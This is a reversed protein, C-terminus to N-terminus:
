NGATARSTTGGAIIPGSGDPPPLTKVWKAIAEDTMEGGPWRYKPVYWQNNGRIRHRFVKRGYFLDTLGSPLPLANGDIYVADAYTPSGIQVVNPIHLVLDSFDICASACGVDTLLFVRRAVPNPPPPETLASPTGAFHVFAKGNARAKQLMDHLKRMWTANDPDHQRQLSLANELVSKINAASVRWDVAVMNNVISQSRDPWADGWLAAAIKDGWQSGGGGNGRVDLVVTGKRLEPAKAKVQDLLAQYSKQDDDSKFYFRPLRVFWVGDLQRLSFDVDYASFGSIVKKNIQDMDGTRWNLKTEGSSFRCSKLKRQSEDPNAIFMESLWMVRAQPIAHNWYYPDTRAKMLADASQGDCSEIHDGVKVGSDPEAFIVQAAGDPGPGIAFGAWEASRPAIVPNINLHGDEFGNTYLRLARVYDSYTRARRAQAMAKVLGGELWDRYHPNEPDVPGPHNDRIIDHIGKLDREAMLAWLNASGAALASAALLGAACAGVAASILRM